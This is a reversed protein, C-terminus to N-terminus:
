KKYYKMAEPLYAKLDAIRTEDAPHTSLIEPPKQGGAKAMREWFKIAEHPDYGAMAMFVLGLKDAESEHLRSYPLLVGVQAGVGYAQMFLAKTEEPKDQLAVDLAMGGFQVLLGQSMRENGHRAVAHAIEHGMVVALGTEDKTFPLIGSYVVVKGGPMCWANPVNEEVLNFEWAYDKVLSEKGKSKLFSAVAVSINKGARKVMATKATDKSLTHSKIFEDYNTLSMAVMQSEPLLHVQKRGTLPVTSCSNIFLLILLTLSTFLKYHPKHM